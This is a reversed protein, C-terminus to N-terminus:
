VWSHARIGLNRLRSFFAYSDSLTLNTTRLTKGSWGMRALPSLHVHHEYFLEDVLSALEPDAAIQQMIAHEMNGTDIDVKVVVFDDVKVVDKLTRLPNYRAGPTADVPVNYYSIRDLVHKPMGTKEGFIGEPKHVTAEWAFIRDFHVGHKEYQEIFWSQSAGGRGNRYTSAGLDFLYCNRPPPAILQYPLLM